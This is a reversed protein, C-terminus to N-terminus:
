ARSGPSCSGSWPWSATATARAPRSRWACTATPWASCCTRAMMLALAVGLALGLLGGLDLALAPLGGGHVAALLLLLFTGTLLGFGLGMRTSFAMAPFPIWPRPPIAQELTLGQNLRQYLLEAERIQSQSPKSRISVYGTIAGQEKVPTVNADVWYFDGNKCRNKVFGQWTKGAKLTAWMDAFVVSPMDPHRVLNHPQGLMEERRFGSIRMFEDNVYTINSQLDTMSVLFGGEQVLHEVTTVPQNVRM